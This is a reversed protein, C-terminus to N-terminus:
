VLLPIRIGFDWIKIQNDIGATLVKEATDNFLVATVQYKCDLSHVAEKTRLDWVKATADDSGSVVIDLGRRAPACSNVFSTHGTFKKIKKLAELDWAGVTKDASSTYLKTGDTSYNIETIANKHGKLTATNKCENYVDWLFIMKDFGASAVQKGDPSFKACYVESQHGSLLVNPAFLRKQTQTEPGTLALLDEQPRDGTSELVYSNTDQITQISSYNKPKMESYRALMSALSHEM